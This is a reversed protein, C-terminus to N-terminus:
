RGESNDTRYFQYILKSNASPHSVKDVYIYENEKCQECTLDKLIEGEESYVRVWDPKIEKFKLIVTYEKIKKNKFSLSSAYYDKGYKMCYPWEYHFLVSCDDYQNLRKKLPLKVKKCLGDESVLMPVIPYKQEPDEKLDYGVCNLDKFQCASDGGINFFFDGEGKESICCGEYKFTVSLNRKDVVIEHIAKHICISKMQTRKMDALFLSEILVHEIEIPQKYRKYKKRKEIITIIFTIAMGLLLFIFVLTLGKVVSYIAFAIEIISMVYLYNDKIKKLFKDKNM